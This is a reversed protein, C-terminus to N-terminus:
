PLYVQNDKDSRLQFALFENIKKDEQTFLPGAFYIRM